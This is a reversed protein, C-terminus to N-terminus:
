NKLQRVAKNFRSKAENREKQNLNLNHSRWFYFDAESKLANRREIEYKDQQARQKSAWEREDSLRKQYAMWRESFIKNWTEATQTEKSSLQKSLIPFFVEYNETLYRDLNTVSFLHHNLVHLLVEALTQRHGDLYKAKELQKKIEPLNQQKAYFDINNSIQQALYKFPDTLQNGEKDWYNNQGNKTVGYVMFEQNFPYVNEYETPILFRTTHQNTDFQLLGFYGGSNIKLNLKGAEENFYQIDSYQAPLVSVGNYKLGVFHGNQFVELARNLMRDGSLTFYIPSQRNGNKDIYFRMNKEQVLSKGNVWNQEVGQFRHPIILQGNKNIFGWLGDKRVLAMGDWFDLANEYRESGISKKTVADIFGYKGASKYRQIGDKEPFEESMSPSVQKGQVDAYYFENERKILSLGNHSLDELKKFTMEKITRKGKKDIYSYSMEKDGEIMLGVRAYGDHFDGVENYNKASLVKNGNRDIFLYGGGSYVRAVGDSFPYAELYKPKIVVKGSADKYGYKKGYKYPTPFNQAAIKVMFVSYFILIITLM